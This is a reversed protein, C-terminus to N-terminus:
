VFSDGLLYSVCTKRVAGGGGRGFVGFVLACVMRALLAQMRKLGAHLEGLLEVVTADDGAAAAAQLPELSAVAPGAAAEIAVHVLRFWEEDVGGNFNQARM